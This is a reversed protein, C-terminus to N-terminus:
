AGSTTRPATRCRPSANSTARRARSEAPFYEHHHRAPGAMEDALYTIGFGGAKLVRVSAITKDAGDRGRGLWRTRTSAPNPQDGPGDRGVSRACPM